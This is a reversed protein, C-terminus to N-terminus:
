WERSVMFEILEELQARGTPDPMWEALKTFRRAADEAFRRAVREAYTISGYQELAELIERVEEWRKEGRDKSLTAVVRGRLQEPAHALLHILMLTRKGEYLDGAREKGYLREDGKLNLVDDRIQFAVGLSRGFPVLEDLAEPGAGAILAGLRLPAICTYWATKKEVMLLYDEETLDWRGQAVWGLEMHQGETTENVMRSFEKLVRLAPEPGIAEGNAVLLEWMRAHLADGANIALPISGYKRHLVPEGRRLDSEDEIDDHILIWNQFLELAAATVTAKDVDGGFARCSAFLLAPRLGKGPRSPYDRMMRYLLDIEAIPSREPLFSFILGMVRERTEDLLAKLGPSLSPKM